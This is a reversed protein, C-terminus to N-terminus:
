AGEIEAVIAIDKRLCDIKAVTTRLEFCHISDHGGEIYAAFNKGTSM